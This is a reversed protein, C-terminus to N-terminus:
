LGSPIDIFDWPLRFQSELAACLARVGWTETAYHGAYFVNVGYEHADLFTHHPGEGTVLSDLGEAAAQRIFSGGAGTVVGVRRVTAPGGALLRVGGGVVTELELRFTEREKEVEGWCGIARGKVEAFPGRPELGIARALVASNGVVPHGDLPLHSSYVGLPRRLLAQTRRYRPGTLRPDLDWYLGHHVILLDAELDQAREIAALSADVAAAVRTIRTPPDVQIGNWATPYDSYAGPELLDELFSIVAQQDVAM